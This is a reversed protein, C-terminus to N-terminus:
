WVWFRDQIQQLLRADDESDSWVEQKSELGVAAVGAALTGTSWARSELPQPAMYPDSM